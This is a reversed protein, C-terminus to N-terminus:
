GMLFIKFVTYFVFCSFLVFEIEFIEIYKNNYIVNKLVSKVKYKCVQASNKKENKVFQKRTCKAKVKVSM